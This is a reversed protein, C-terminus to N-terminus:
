KALVKCSLANGLQLMCPRLVCRNQIETSSPYQEADVYNVQVDFCLMDPCPHQSSMFAGWNESSVEVLM